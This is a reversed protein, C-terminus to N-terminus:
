GTDLLKALAQADETKPFQIACTVDDHSDGSPAEFSVTLGEAGKNVLPIFYPIVFWLGNRTWGADIKVRKVEDVNFYITPFKGSACATMNAMSWFVVAGLVGFLWHLILLGPIVVEM